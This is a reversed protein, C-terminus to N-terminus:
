RAEPIPASRVVFAGPDQGRKAPDMLYSLKGEPFFARGGSATVSSAYDIGQAIVEVQVPGSESFTLVTITGGNGESQLMRNGGLPRLGDPGQLPSTTELVVIEGAAGNPAIPVELLTNRTINNAFLRGGPGFSVGDIGALLDSRPAWYELANAGAPLKLIRAGVTDSAYLDGNAAITIDNCLAPGADAPFPYTAVLSGDALAFAKVAAVGQQAPQVLTNPNTCTWLLGRADDALVGFVAQLGNAADPVIWPEAADSGARVRFITGPNSGVYLNGAADSTISEPFVREGPLRIEEPAPAVPVSACGALAAAAVFAALYRWAPQAILMSERELYSM